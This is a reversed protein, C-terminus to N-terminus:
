QGRSWMNIVTKRAIELNKPKYVDDVAKEDNASFFLGISLTIDTMYQFKKFIESVEDLLKLYYQKRQKQKPAKFFPALGFFLFVVAFFTVVTIFGAM